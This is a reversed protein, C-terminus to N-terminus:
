AYVHGWCGCIARSEGYPFSTAPGNWDMIMSMSLDWYKKLPMCSRYNENVSREVQWGVVVYFLTLSSLRLTVMM